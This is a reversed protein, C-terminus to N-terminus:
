LILYKNFFYVNDQVSSTFYKNVKGIIVNRDERVCM